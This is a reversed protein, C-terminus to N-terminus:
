EHVRPLVYFVGFAFSLPVILAVSFKIWEVQLARLNLSPQEIFKRSLTAFFLGIPISWLLALGRQGSIYLIIVPPWHWLYLSYSIRGLWRLASFELISSLLSSNRAVAAAILVAACAGVLTFGGFYMWPKNWEAAYVSAALIFVAPLWLSAVRRMNQLDLFALACGFCLADFRCDFSDYVSMPNSVHEFRYARWFAVLLATVILVVIRRTSTRVLNLLGFALAPWVMYFQEEVSLSWTPALFLPIGGNVRTYDSVFTLTVSFDRALAIYPIGVLPGICLLGICVGLLPPVIRLFRRWYFTVFEVSGTNQFETILLRSILFGSLVFFIDVGIGGGVMFWVSAHCGVVLSISIGRVGDLGPMFPLSHTTAGPLAADSRIPHSIANM